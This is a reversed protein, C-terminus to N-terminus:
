GSKLTYLKISLIENVQVAMGGFNVWTQFYWTEVIEM